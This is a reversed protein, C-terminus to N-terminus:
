KIRKAAVIGDDTKLEDGDLKLVYTDATNDSNEVVSVKIRGDKLVNWVFNFRESDLEGTWYNKPKIIEVIGTKDSLFNITVVSKDKTGSLWTWRGNIKYEPNSCGNIFLFSLVLLCIIVRM